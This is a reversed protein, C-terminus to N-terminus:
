NKTTNTKQTPLDTTANPLDPGTRTECIPTSDTAKYLPPSFNSSVSSFRSSCRVSPVSANSVSYIPASFNGYLSIYGTEALPTSYFFPATKAAGNPYPKPLKMYINEGSKMEGDLKM